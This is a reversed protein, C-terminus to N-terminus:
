EEILLELMATQALSRLNGSTEIARLILAAM